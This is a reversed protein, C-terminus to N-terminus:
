RALESERGPKKPEETLVGDVRGPFYFLNFDVM